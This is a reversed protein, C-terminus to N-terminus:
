TKAPATQAAAVAAVTPVHPIMDVIKQAALEPTIGFHKAADPVLKFITNAAVALAGSQVEVKLGNVKVFGDAVLSAAQNRAWTLFADRMSDDISINLKSKVIFLVWGVVASLIGTILTDVFPKLQSLFGGVEIVGGTNEAAAAALPILVVALVLAAFLAQVPRLVTLRLPLFSVVIMALVLLVWLTPLM